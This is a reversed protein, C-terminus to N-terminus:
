KKEFVFSVSVSDRKGWGTRVRHVQGQLTMAETKSVFVTALLFLTLMAMKSM